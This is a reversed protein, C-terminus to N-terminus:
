DRRDLLARARRAAPHDAGATAELHELASTFATRADAWRGEGAHAEGLALYAIGIGAARSGAPIQERSLAISREADTGADAFRGMRVHIEARRRLLQPLYSERRIDGEALQIARDTLSVAKRLDGRGEPIRIRDMAVAVFAAHTPPFMKQFHSEVEALLAAGRDIDGSALHLRARQLLAQDAVMRDGKALAETYARMSLELGESYRGLDFLAGALNNWLIPDVLADASKASSIQVARRLMRESERPRGLSRMVLGWNNLLIGARETDERGLAALRRYADSFAADAESYRGAIRYSEALDMAIRLRLLPSSAGSEVALSEAARAHAIAREGDGASNELSVGCLHCVVRTLTYQSQDPLERLGEVLLRRARVVDGTRVAARALECSAKARLSPETTARSQEYAQELLRNAEGTEGLTVYLRGIAVLSELRTGDPDDVQRAVIQEARALLERPTFAKGIPAADALLFANLDNIAEARALQRRAFDSQATADAAERDARDRETEALRAHATARRSEILTGALGAVLALMALAALAVPARHRRIFKGARYAVSDPRASVPQSSLFCRLDQALAEATHYREDPDKKLAKAVINDLDGRLAHGLAPNAALESPRPADRDLTARALEPGSKGEPDLPHKGALLLFLVLGLAYVDTATTVPQQLLQEPAAYEPTLGPDVERTLQADGPGLLAAIGFDLLKVVGDSSVLINSPKIDRHVILHSHAHAVAALVDLFLRVRAEIDLNRREAYRDIREGEVYELVLYPQGSPAVGADILQAINPHRLRALVSGERIFRQETPRGLLAANLLKIAARGEYRGDSRRALWVTGMGGHGLVADLTYAGVQQGTLGTRPLAVTREESLLPQQALREREAILSRVAGSVTPARDDLERLWAVRAQDDLDLAEDLYRSIEHWRKQEDTAMTM